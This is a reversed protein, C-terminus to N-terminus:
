APGSCRREFMISVSAFQIWRTMALAPFPGSPGHRWSGIKEKKRLRVARRHVQLKGDVPPTWSVVHLKRCLAAQAKPSRVHLVSPSAANVTAQPRLPGAEASALSAGFFRFLIRTFSLELESPSSQVTASAPFPMISSPMRWATTAAFLGVVAALLLTRFSKM